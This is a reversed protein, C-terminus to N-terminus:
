FNPWPGHSQREDFDDLRSLAAEIARVIVTRLFRQRPQTPDFGSHRYVLRTGRCTSQLFWAAQSHWPTASGLTTLNFALYEYCKVQIFEGRVAGTFVTGPIPFTRFTFHYGAAVTPMNIDLVWGGLMFERSLLRQWVWERSHPYFREVRLGRSDGTM